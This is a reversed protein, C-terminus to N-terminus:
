DGARIKNFHENAHTRRAYTVHELLCLFVRRANDEDVFNVRDTALATSTQAATVILAFLRQVLHQDLHISEFRRTTYDHNRRGVTGIHKIRGQQARTTKIALDHHRQRIDTATLLNEIHVHALHRNGRIHHGVRDSAARGSERTGIKGVEDILCGQERRAAVLSQDFHFIEFTGLVLDHHAGLATRHDHVLFLFLVGGIMLGAVGQESVNKGLAIRNVLNRDDRTTAGKTDGYLQGLLIAVCIVPM